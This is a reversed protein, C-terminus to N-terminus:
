AARLREAFRLPDSRTRVALAVASPAKARYPFYIQESPRAEVLVMDGPDGVDRTVGVVRRWPGGEVRLRRGLAAAGGGFRRALGESILVVDRGEAEEEPLFPRGAVVGVGAAEGFARTAAFCAARPARREEVPQAEVEFAKVSGADSLPLGNAIGAAVVEPDASLRRVLEEVFEARQRPERYADGALALRATLVRHSDLLTSAGYRREFSQVMLAAGVLLVLAAALQSVALLRSFRARAGGAVTRGGEKLREVLSEGGAGLAPIIGVLLTSLAAVGVTFGVVRVDLDLRAWFPPATPALGQLQEAGLSGLLVGLAAGGAVLLATEVLFQRLVHGRGAGLAHRLAIERRQGAAKVLLLNAVNACAILQVFLAAALVLYLGSVVGPPTLLELYPRVLASRGENTDPYDRALAAAVSELEARAQAVTVNPALRAVVDLRHDGRDGKGVELGLPTWVEAYEPYAFREPMVGVITHLTGDLRLTRGVVAPDQGLHRRWLSHGILAVNSGERDEDPRLGRGLVPTIGLTPFLTATVRAASVHEPEGETSLNHEIREFAGMSEFSRARAQWDLFDPASLSSRGSWEGGGEPLTQRLGVLREPALYPLPRFLWPNASTFLTVCTGIGLGMCLIALVSITKHRLLSRSAYRLSAFLSEM